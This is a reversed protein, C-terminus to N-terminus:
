RLSYGRFFSRKVASARPIKGYVSLQLLVEAEDKSYIRDDLYDALFALAIAIILAVLLVIAYTLAKQAFSGAVARADTADSVVRAAVAPQVTSDTSTRTTVVYDLYSGIHTASVEGVATAIAGAGAPTPWTVNVTVLNRARNADLAGALATADQWNGLNANAGYRQVIQSRDLDIQQSVQTAFEHSTLIPGAVFTEALMDSVALNDAYNHDVGKTTAELGIQFTISSRYATLGGPTHRFQNYQYGIYLAIVAPILAVLWMRRWIIAGYARLEM